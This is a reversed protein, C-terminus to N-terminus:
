LNARDLVRMWAKISAEEQGKDLAENSPIKASRSPRGLVRARLRQYSVDFTRALPAIKPEGRDYYAHLADSIRKEIDTNSKSM